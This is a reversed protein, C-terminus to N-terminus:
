SPRNNTPRYYCHRYFEDRLKKTAEEPTLCIRQQVLSQALFEVFAGSAKRVKRKLAKDQPGPSLIASQQATPSFIDSHFRVFFDIDKSRHVAQDSAGKIITLPEGPQEATCSKEASRITDAMFASELATRLTSGGLYIAKILPAAGIASDYD